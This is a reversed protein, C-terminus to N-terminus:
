SKRLLRQILSAEPKLLDQDLVSLQRQKEFFSYGFVDLNKLILNLCELGRNFFRLEFASVFLSSFNNLAQRDLYLLVLSQHVVKFSQFLLYVHLIGLDFIYEFM